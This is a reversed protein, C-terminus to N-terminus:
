STFITCPISGAPVPKTMTSFEQGMKLDRNVYLLSMFECADNFFHTRSDRAKM